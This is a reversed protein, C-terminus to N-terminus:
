QNFYDRAQKIVFSDGVINIKEIKGDDLFVMLTKNTNVSNHILKYVEISKSKSVMDYADINPTIYNLYKHLEDVPNGEFTNLNISEMDSLELIGENSYKDMVILSSDELVEDEEYTGFDYTQVEVVKNNNLEIYLASGELENDATYKPYVLGVIGTENLEEITQTNNIKYKDIWYTTSYPAGMNNLVYNYDKNMIENVDNQVKTMTQQQKARNTVTKTASDNTCGTLFLSSIIFSAVLRKLNM